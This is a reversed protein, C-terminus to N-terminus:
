AMGKGPFHGGILYKKELYNDRAVAGRRKLARGVLFADVLLEHTVADLMAGVVGVLHRADVLHAVLLLEESTLQM